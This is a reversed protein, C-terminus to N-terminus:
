ERRDVQLKRIFLSVLFADSLVPVRQNCEEIGRVITSSTMTPMLVLPRIPFILSNRKAFPVPNLRVLVAADSFQYQRIAPQATRYGSFQAIESLQSVQIQGVVPTVPSPQLPIRGTQGTSYRPFEAVEGIQFHQVKALITQGAVYRVGEAVEDIQLNQVEAFVTLLCPKNRPSAPQFARYRIVQALEVVKLLQPQVVVQQGSIYSFYQVAEFPM